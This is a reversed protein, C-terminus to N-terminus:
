VYVSDGKKGDLAEEFVLRGLGQPMHSWVGGADSKDKVSIM